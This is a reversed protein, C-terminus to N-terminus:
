SFVFHAERIFIFQINIPCTGSSSAFIMLKNDKSFIIIFHVFIYFLILFYIKFFYVLTSISFYSHFGM